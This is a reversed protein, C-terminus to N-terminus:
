FPFPVSPADRAARAFWYQAQSWNKELAAIRGRVRLCLGCDAPMRDIIAHAGKLDGSQALALAIQPQIMRPNIDRNLTAGLVPQTNEFRSRRELLPSWHGLEAEGLAEMASLWEAPAATTAAM